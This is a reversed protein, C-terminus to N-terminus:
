YVEFSLVQMGWNEKVDIASLAKTAELKCYNAIISRARSADQTSTVIVYMRSPGIHAPATVTIGPKPLSLDHDPDIANEDSRLDTGDGHVPFALECRGPSDDQFLWVFGSGSAKIDLLLPQTPHVKPELGSVVVRIKRLVASPVTIVRTEGPDLLVDQDLVIEDGVLVEVHAPGPQVILSRDEQMAYDALNKRTSDSVVIRSSRRLFDDDATVRLRTVPPSVFISRIADLHSLTFGLAAGVVGLIAIWRHLRLSSIEQQLKAIEAADRDKADNAPPPRRPSGKSM